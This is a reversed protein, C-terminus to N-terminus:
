AKGNPLIARKLVRLGGNLYIRDFRNLRGRFGVEGRAITLAREVVRSLDERGRDALPKVIEEYFPFVTSWINVKQAALEASLERQPFASTKELAGVAILGLMTRVCKECEGCNLRDPRYLEQKNCVRLNDLGVPWEALLRLKEFRSLATGDYRVKLDFSSFYPDVLLHSGHPRMNPVDYDSAIIASGVRRGLSHAIAALAPGMHAKWWFGWDEKLIRLNTTVPVLTVRAEEAIRKLATLAYEFAQPDIVELNFVIIGDKVSAPHDLPFNLRNARLAALSDVGGTFFFASRRPSTQASTRRKSEVPMTQSIEPFWNQFVKTVVAVNDLFEPCLEGDVVLRKEGEWLAPPLAASVFAEPFYGIADAVEDAAEFYVECPSRPAEEWVITASM